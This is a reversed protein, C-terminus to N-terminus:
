YVEELFSKYFQIQDNGVLSSLNFSFVAKRKLNIDDDDYALGIKIVFDSPEGLWNKKIPRNYKSLPIINYVTHASFMNENEVFSKYDRSAGSIKMLHKNYLSYIIFSDKVKNKM